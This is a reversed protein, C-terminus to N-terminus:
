GPAPVSLTRRLALRYTACALVAGGAGLGTLVMSAFAATGMHVARLRGGAGMELLREVVFLSVPGRALAMIGLRGIGILWGTCLVVRAGHAEMLRVVIGTAM